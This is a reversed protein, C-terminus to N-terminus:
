MTFMKFVSCMEFQSRSRQPLWPLSFVKDSRPQLTLYTEKDSWAWPPIRRWCRSIKIITADSQNHSHGVKYYIDTVGEPFILLSCLMSFKHTTNSKNQGVCNDLVKCEALSLNTQNELLYQKLDNWRLSCVSNGDKGAQREDFYTIHCRGTACDVFNMNLLTINSAYYDHNPQDAGYFPLPIGSGFDQVTM